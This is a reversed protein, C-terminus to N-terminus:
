GEDVGADSTYNFRHSQAELIVSTNGVRRIPAGFKLVFQNSTGVEPYIRKELDLRTLSSVISDDSDDIVRVFKSFRFSTDFKEVNNQAFEVISERIVDELQAKTRTTAKPDYKVSSSINLYIYDPDIVQPIVGVVSRPKIINEEINFRIIDTFRLGIKPKLAIFVHGFIPRERADNPDGQEGGFVNIAGIHEGYQALLITKYDQATVCRNQAQYTLPALFRASDL